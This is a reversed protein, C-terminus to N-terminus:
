AAAPGGYWAGGHVRAERWTRSTERRSRAPVTDGPYRYARMRASQNPGGDQWEFFPIGGGWRLEVTSRIMAAITGTQDTPLGLMRQRRIANLAEDLTIWGDVHTRGLGEADQLHRDLVMACKHIQGEDYERQQREILERVMGEADDPM